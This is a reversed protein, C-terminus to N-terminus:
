IVEEGVYKISGGCAGCQLRHINRRKTKSMLPHKNECQYVHVLTLIGLNGSLPAGLRNCAEIFEPDDDYSPIGKIMHAYHICEHYLVGYLMTNDEKILADVCAVKAIEIYQPSGHNAAVRGMARTLRGNLTLPVKLTLGYNKTLFKNAIALLDAEIASQNKNVFEMKKKYNEVM